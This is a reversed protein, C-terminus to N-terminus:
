DKIGIWHEMDGKYKKNLHNIHDEILKKSNHWCGHSTYNTKIYRYEIRYQTM